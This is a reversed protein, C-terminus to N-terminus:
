SGGIEQGKVKLWCVSKGGRERRGKWWGGGKCLWVVKGEQQVVMVLGEGDDEAERTMGRKGKVATVGIGKGRKREVVCGGVGIKGKHGTYMM